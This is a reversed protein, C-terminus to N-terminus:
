NDWIQGPQVGYRSFIAEIDQAMEKRIITTGNIYYQVKCNTGGILTKLEERLRAVDGFAVANLGAKFGRHMGPELITKKRM